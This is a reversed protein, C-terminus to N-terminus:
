YVQGAAARPAVAEPAPAQALGLQASIKMAAAKVEQALAQINGSHIQTTTGTVSIAAVAELRENLVPAGVCRMGLEEEEDDVAYGVKRITECDQKLKKVSVITNENHRLLGHKHILHELQLDSLSALLAKGIATCNLGMRKGVWTAPRVPGPPEMKEILVGEAGDLVGMHATLGTREVLQRLAPKALDRLGIHSLAMNALGLLRLGLRYRHTLHDRYVYGARELTVLLCHTSSRPMGLQCRLQSLGLGSRSRALAELILLAREASPVSETMPAPM